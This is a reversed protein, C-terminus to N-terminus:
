RQSITKNQIMPQKLKNRKQKKHLHKIEKKLFFLYM